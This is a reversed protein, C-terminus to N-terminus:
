TDIAVGARRHVFRLATQLRPEQKTGTSFITVFSAAQQVPLHAWKWIESGDNM